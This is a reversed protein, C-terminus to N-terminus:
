QVPVKDQPPVLVKELIESYGQAGGVTSMLWIPYSVQQGQALCM